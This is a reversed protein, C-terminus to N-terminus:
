FPVDGKVTIRHMIRTEAPYDNIAFHQTCRNDWFALSGTEWRFRCTFEPRTSHSMLFKILPRSEEETMGEFQVVHAGIYLAKRGTEPHTRVLPHVADTPEDEGPDRGRMSGVSAALLEKRSPGGARKSRDGICVTRLPALMERMAPSLSEYALYQNTFMTDGGASPVQLAYLITGMAPRPSFMQDTHWNGGFNRKDTPRKIIELIEPYDAMGEMFPHLHIEGWRRAFRLQQAPTLQQNRFFIVCNALLAARIEALVDDPLDQALDVGAVEAGLAGAIPTVEITRYATNRMQNM